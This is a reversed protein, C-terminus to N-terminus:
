HLESDEYSQVKRRRACAPTTPDNSEESDSQVIPSPRFFRFGHSLPAGKQLRMETGCMPASLAETAAAKLELEHRTSKTEQHQWGVTDPLSVQRLLDKTVMPAGNGVRVIFATLTSYAPLYTPLYTPLAASCWLLLMSPIHVTEGEM